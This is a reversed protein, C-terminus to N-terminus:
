DTTASSVSCQRLTKVLDAIQFPKRLFSRVQLRSMTAAVTEEGYASMLVVRVERGAAVVVEESSAGPITLDLLIVDIKDRNAQLFEIASTGDAAEFVEFGTKTLMKVVGQRLADEDEVVLVAGDLSPRVAQEFTSIAHNTARETTEAIPLLLQFTTGKGPESTVHIAGDLGEVIGLVVALGLGRGASKTTFFPDFMRERTERSMGCGTDSVELALYDGEPLPRSGAAPQNDLRVRRTGVRIVGDRNAIADSANGVLNMLLQRIKPASARIPPLDPSLDTKV